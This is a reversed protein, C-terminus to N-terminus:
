RRRAVAVLSVGSRRRLAPVRDEVRLVGTLVANLPRAVPELDSVYEDPPAPTRMASRNTLTRRLRVLPRLLVMWADLSMPALGGDELAQRLTARTYRRHHSLAVDHPSWLMPDAPVTAVLTGEPRLVRRLERIARRDDALHELVDCALVVDFCGDAFPLRHADGRVVDIGRSRSFAAAVPHHEL